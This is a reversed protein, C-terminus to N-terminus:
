RSYGQTYDAPADDRLGWWMLYAYKGSRARFWPEDPKIPRVKAPPTVVVATLKDAETTGAVLVNAGLHNAYAIALAVNTLASGAGMDGLLASTNFTQQVFDLGPLETTITQALPGLRDSSLPHVNGADHIVYGIDTTQKGSNAAAQKFAASWAQVPRPPLETKAEYNDLQEVAPMGIWALPARGTKYTPGALVLLVLNETMQEDQPFAPADWNMAWVTEDPHNRLYNLANELSVFGASCGGTNLHIDPPSGKSWLTPEHPNGIQLIGLMEDLLVHKASSLNESRTSVAYEIHAGGLERWRKQDKGQVNYFYETDGFYQSQMPAILQTIYGRHFGNFVDPNGSSDIIATVPQVKTYKQPNSKVMEDNPNPKVKGLTWLLQWETSYDKRQLPNLWQLGVVQAVQPLSGTPAASSVLGQSLLPITVSIIKAKNKNKRILESLIKM